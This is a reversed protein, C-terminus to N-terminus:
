KVTKFGNQAWSIYGGEVNRVDQFGMEILVKSATQSRMGSRCYVYVTQSKDLDAAQTKFNANNIDINKANEIYGGSVEGPTRVDLIVINEGGQIAKNLDQTSVNTFKGQTTTQETAVSNSVEANTCSIAFFSFVSLILLFLNKMM